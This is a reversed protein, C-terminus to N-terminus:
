GIVVGVMLTADGIKVTVKDGAKVSVNEDLEFVEQGMDGPMMMDVGPTALRGKYTKNNITIDLSDSTFIPSNKGGDQESLHYTYVDVATGSVSKAENGDASWKDMVSVVKKANESSYNDYDTVFEVKELGFSEVDTMLLEVLASDTCNSIYVVVNKIGLGKIMEIQEHTQPMVRDNMDIVLIVGDPVIGQSAISKCIDNYDPLDYINYNRSESKISVCQAHYTVSGSKCEKANYLQDVSIKQGYASAISSTVESKGHGIQGLVIVNFGGSSSSQGCGGLLMAAALLCVLLMSIFSRKKM